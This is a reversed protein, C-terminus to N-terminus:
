KKLCIISAMRGTKYGRRYSYFKDEDAFTCEQHRTISAVGAMELLHTALGSLDAHYKEGTSTIFFRSLKQSLACFVQRVEAGVEFNSRGICPGLWAHIDKNEAAMKSLTNLIINAALPRWGAHIAAIESGESNSLLIPLCDATMIALAINRSRTIVADAVIPSRDHKIVEAVHSGHVQELWQLKANVPLYNLLSARNTLVTEPCDGVHTALNFYDFESQSSVTNTVSSRIHLPPKSTVQNSPPLRTTSFALVKPIPWDIHIINNTNTIM